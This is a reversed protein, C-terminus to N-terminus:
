LAFLVNEQFVAANINQIKSKWQLIKVIMILLCLCSVTTISTLTQEFNPNNILCKLLVLLQSPQISYTNVAHLTVTCSSYM